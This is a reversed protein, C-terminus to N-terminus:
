GPHRICTAAVSCVPWRGATCHRAAQASQTFTASQTPAAGWHRRRKRGGLQGRRRLAAALSSSLRRAAAQGDRRRKGVVRVWQGPAGCQDPESAVQAQVVVRRECGRQLRAAGHHTACGKCAALRQGPAWPALEHTGRLPRVRDTRPWASQGQGRACRWVCTTQKMQAGSSSPWNSGPRQLRQHSWLESFARDALRRLSPDRSTKLVPRWTRGRAASSSCGPSRSLSLSPSYPPQASASARAALRGWLTCPQVSESLESAVGPPPAVRRTMRGPPSACSVARRQAPQAQCGGPTGTAGV